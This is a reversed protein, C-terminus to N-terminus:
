ILTQELSRRRARLAEYRVIVGASTEYEALLGRLSGIIFIAKEGSDGAQFLDLQVRMRGLLGERHEETVTPRSKIHEYQPRLEAMERDIEALRHTISPSRNQGSGVELTM